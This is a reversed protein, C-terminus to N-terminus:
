GFKAILTTISGCIMGTIVGIGYTPSAVVCVLGFVLLAPLMWVRPEPPPEPLPYGLDDWDFGVEDLMRQAHPPM